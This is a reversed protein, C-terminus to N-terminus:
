LDFYNHPCNSHIFAQHMFSEDASFNAVQFGPKAGEPLHSYGDYHKCFYGYFQSVYDVGVKDDKSAHEQLTTIILSFGILQQHQDTTLDQPNVLSKEYLEMPPISNAKIGLSKSIM